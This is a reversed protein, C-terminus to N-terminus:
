MIVPPARPSYTNFSRLIVVSRLPRLTMTTLLVFVTLVTAAPTVYPLGYLQCILCDHFSTGQTSLHGAHHIHNICLQCVVNGGSVTQHIHTSIIIMMPIFVSLLIYSIIKRRRAIRM